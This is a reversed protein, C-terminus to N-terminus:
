YQLAGKAHLLQTVARRQDFYSEQLKFNAKELDNLADLVDNISALDNKHQKNVMEYTDTALEIEKEVIVSNQLTSQYAQEAKVISLDIMEEAEEIRERYIQSELKSKKAKLHSQNGDFVNWQIGVGVFWKPDLLSLYNDIFEYHGKVAVKPIFHSQEMKSKYITAKEAEELAKIENRKETSSVASLRFSELTPRLMRLNDRDEGTLQNLAEILLVKNHEFELKKGALQQQALEIKKRDIPTALGNEIAKRVFHAQENLYNESTNLVSESAYVLALKDYTEIIKLALKDKEAMGLYNISSEKHKSAKIANTAELGSFLVWDVDVSSKLINKDQLNPTERLPINDPFPANFPLGAAEKIVLKQTAMLLNQTDEDFKLDDNLRTYSGNLTVKPIFVSKALRQDLKAQEAEINNITVTQSKNVGKTILDQLVPDLQQSFSSISFLGAISFFLFSFVVKNIQM